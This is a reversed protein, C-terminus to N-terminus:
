PAPFPCFYCVYKTGLVCAIADSSTSSDLAAALGFARPADFNALCVGHPVHWLSLETNTLTLLFDRGLPQMAITLAPVTLKSTRIRADSRRWNRDLRLANVM